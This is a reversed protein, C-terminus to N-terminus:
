LIRGFKLVVAFIEPKNKIKVSDNENGRSKQSETEHVAFREPFIAKGYHIDGFVYVIDKTNGPKGFNHIYDRNILRRLLPM